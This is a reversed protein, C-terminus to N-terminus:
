LSAVYAEFEHPLKDAKSLNCPVCLLQLNDPWNSGGRSLPIVHDVHFRAGFDVRCHNCLGGQRALMAEVDSAAYSGEASLRIARRKAVIARMAEPNEKAWGRCLARHKELNKERWERNKALAAQPNAAYRAKRRELLVAKNEAYAKALRERERRIVEPRKRYEAKQEARCAKCLSYYGDPSSPNKNFQALPLEMDCRNCRKM